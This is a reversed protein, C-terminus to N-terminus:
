AREPIAHVHVYHGSHRAFIELARREHEPDRIGVWLLLGGRDLQDELYRAHHEDLWRALASGIAAGGAGALFATVGAGGLPGGAAVVAGGALIACIYFLGGILAGQADGISERSVYAARPVQPKYEAETVDELPHGLKEAVAERSALLSLESRDFGSSLLEDIAAQFSDAEHFVAVAERVAAARQEATV